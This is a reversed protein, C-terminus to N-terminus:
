ALEQMKSIFLPKHCVELPFLAGDFNLALAPKPNQTRFAKKGMRLRACHLNVPLFAAGIHNESCGLSQLIRRFFSLAATVFM